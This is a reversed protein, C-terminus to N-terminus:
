SFSDPFYNELVKKAEDPNTTKELPFSFSYEDGPIHEPHTMRLEHNWPLFPKFSQIFEIGREGEIVQNRPIDQGDISVGWYWMDSDLDGRASFHASGCLYVRPKEKPLNSPNLSVIPTESDEVQPGYHINGQPSLFLHTQIPLAIPKDLVIVERKKVQEEVVKSEIGSIRNLGRGKGNYFLPESDRKCYFDVPCYDEELAEPFIHTVSLIPIRGIERVNSLKEKESIIIGRDPKILVTENNNIKVPKDIKMYHGSEEGRAIQEKSYSLIDFAYYYIGKDEAQKRRLTLFPLFIAGKPHPENPIIHSVKWIEDQKAKM